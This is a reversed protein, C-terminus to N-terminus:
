STEAALEPVHPAMLARAPALAPLSALLRHAVAYVAPLYALHGALAYLSRRSAWLMRAAEPVLVQPRRILWYALAAWAGPSLPNGIRRTLFALPAHEPQYERGVPRLTLVRVRVGRRVLRHVENELFWALTPFTTTIYAVSEM